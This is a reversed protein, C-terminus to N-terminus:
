HPDLAANFARVHGFPDRVRAPRACWFMDAPSIIVTAGSSAARACAADVAGPDSFNIQIAAGAGDPAAPGSMALNAHLKQVGDKAM